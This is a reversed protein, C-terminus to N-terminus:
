CLNVIVLIFINLYVKDKSIDIYCRNLYSFFEYFVKCEYVFGNAYFLIYVYIYIIKQLCYIM